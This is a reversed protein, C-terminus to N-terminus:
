STRASNFSTSPTPYNDGAPDDARAVTRSVPTEYSRDEHGMTARPTPQQSNAGKLRSTLKPRRTTVSSELHLVPMEEQINQEKARERANERERERPPPIPPAREGGRDPATPPPRRAPPLQQVPAPPTLSAPIAVFPLLANGPSTRPPPIQPQQRRLWTLHPGLNNKTTMSILVVTCQHGHSVRHCALDLPPITLYRLTNPTIPTHPPPRHHYHLHHPSAILPERKSSAM